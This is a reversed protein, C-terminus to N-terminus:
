GNFEDEFALAFRIDVFEILELAWVDALVNFQYWGTIAHGPIQQVSGSANGVVYSAANFGSGFMAETDDGQREAVIDFSEGFQGTRVYRQGDTSIEGRAIAAFYWRRARANAQPDFSWVFPHVAPRPYESSQQLIAGSTEVIGEQVVDHLIEPTIDIAINLQSFDGNSLTEVRIATM